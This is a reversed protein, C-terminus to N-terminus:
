EPRGRDDLPDGGLREPVRGCEDRLGVGHAVRDRTVPELRAAGAPDLPLHPTELGDGAAAGALLDGVGVLDLPAVADPGAPDGLLDELFRM